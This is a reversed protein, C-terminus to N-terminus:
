KSKAKGDDKQGKQAGGSTTIDKERHVPRNEAM